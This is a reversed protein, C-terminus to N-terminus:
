QCEVFSRVTPPYGHERPAVAPVIIMLYLSQSTIKSFIWRAQAGDGDQGEMVIKDGVKPAIFTLLEGHVSGTWVVRWADLKPDYFRVTTGYEGLGAGAKNREVRRSHDM